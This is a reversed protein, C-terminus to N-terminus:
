LSLSDVSSYMCWLFYIVLDYNLFNSSLESYWSYILFLFLGLDINLMLLISGRSNSTSNLSSSSYCISCLFVAPLDEINEFNSQNKLRM